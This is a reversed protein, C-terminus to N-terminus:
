ELNINKKIFTIFRQIEPFNYGTDIHLLPIELKMPSIAKLALHLLVISDKGGSFLIALNKFHRVSERIIFISESELEKSFPFNIIKLSM